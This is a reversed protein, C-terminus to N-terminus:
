RIAVIEIWGENAHYMMCVIKDSQEKCDTVKKYSATVTAGDAFAEIKGVNCIHYDKGDSRLYSGTCDKVVTMKKGSEKKCATLTFLAIASYVFLKKM